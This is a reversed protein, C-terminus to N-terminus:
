AMGGQHLGALYYLTTGLRKAKGKRGFVQSSEWRATEKMPCVLLHWFICLDDKESLGVIPVSM